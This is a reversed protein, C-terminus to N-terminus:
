AGKREGSQALDDLSVIQRQKTGTEDKSSCSGCGADKECISRCVWRITYVAAAAVCAIAAVNQWDSQM